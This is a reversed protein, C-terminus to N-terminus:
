KKEEELRLEAITHPPFLKYGAPVRGLLGVLTGDDTKTLLTMAHKTGDHLTVEFDDAPQKKSTAPLHRLGAVKEFEIKVTKKFLLHSRLRLTGDADQYLPTLGAVAHKTKEKDAAIVTAPRGAVTEAPTPSPFRLGRVVGKASGAQFKVTATGMGDLDVDGEIVVKNIGVFKTTGTLTAERDATAVTATVTKKADDYDLQKLAAVPVLTLIGAQYTTSGGERFELFEAGKAAVGPLRRTGARFRWNRVPAAKGDTGVVTLPPTKEGGAADALMLPLLLLVALRRM